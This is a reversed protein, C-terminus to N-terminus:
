STWTRPYNDQYRLQSEIWPEPYNTGAAIYAHTLYWIQDGPIYTKLEPIYFGTSNIVENPKLDIITIDHGDFDFVDGELVEIDM